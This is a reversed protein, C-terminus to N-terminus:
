RMSGAYSFCRVTGDRAAATQFFHAARISIYCKTDCKFVAGSKGFNRWHIPGGELSPLRMRAREPRAPIRRSPCVPVPSPEGHILVGSRVPTGVFSYHM